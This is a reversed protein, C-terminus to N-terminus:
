PNIQGATTTARTTLAPRLCGTGASDAVLGVKCECKNTAKNFIQFQNPCACYNDRSATTGTPCTLCSVTERDFIQNTGNCQCKSGPRYWPRKSQRPLWEGPCDQCAWDAVNWFQTVNNCQCKKDRNLTSGLPCVKCANETNDLSMTAPCFCSDAEQTSGTACKVCSKSTRNYTTGQNCVCVQLNAAVHMGAACQACASQTNNWVQGSPCTQNSCVQDTCQLYKNTNCCGLVRSGAVGRCPNWWGGICGCFGGRHEESSSSTFDDCFGQLLGGILGKIPGGDGDGGGNANVSSIALLVTSLVLIIKM